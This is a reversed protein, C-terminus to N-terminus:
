IGAFWENYKEGLVPVPEMKGNLANMFGLLWLVVMVIFGLGSIIWGLVPIVSVVGFALGTVFLGLSQRIHYTAFANKKEGNQVFAIILGIITLYAIMAINKGENIAQQTVQNEM